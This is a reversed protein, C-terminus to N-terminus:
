LGVRHLDGTSQHMGMSEQRHALGRGARCAGVRRGVAGRGGEAGDVRSPDPPRVNFHAFVVVPGRRAAGEGGPPEGQPLGAEGGGERGSGSAPAGPDEAAAAVNELLEELFGVVAAVQWSTVCPKCLFSYLSYHIPFGVVAAVQSGRRLCLERHCPATSTAQHPQPQATLRLGATTYPVCTM